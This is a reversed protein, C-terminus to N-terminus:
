ISSPAEVDASDNEEVRQRKSTVPSGNTETDSTRSQENAPSDEPLPRKLKNTVEAPTEDSTPPLFRDLRVIIATMNDCGTGDGLTDPSLCEDFLEECIKSLSQPSGGAKQFRPRIFDVVQQNTKSNWIGDCALVVFDDGPELDIKQIDPLASIMQESHSLQTNQKYAHDGLARSLNLGGNVRGDNTVVGGARQIRSREPEDEPKHDASLAVATGGRSLVCRSDGANAVFLTNDHILAVVATCGSDSGPEERLNMSFHKAKAAVEADEEEEVEEDDEDADDEDEEDDEDDVDENAAPDDSSSSDGDFDEDEEDDGDEESEEDPNVLSKYREEASKARLSEKRELRKAKREAEQKEFEIEEPSKEVVKRITNSLGKGVGKGKSSTTVEQSKPKHSDTGNTTKGNMEPSSNEKKTETTESIVEPKESDEVSTSNATTSTKPSEEKETNTEKEDSKTDPNVKSHIKSMVYELSENKSSGDSQENMNARVKKGYKIILEEISMTAEEYLDSMEDPDEESPEKQKKSGAITHLVKVIDPKTLLLDFGLYADILAKEYDGQQYAETTKLFNPLHDACYAAVEHGGHGDYVAFFSTKADFDLICNHADEQSVRWGQMSSTGYSIKHEESKEDCSIKEIQPQSM